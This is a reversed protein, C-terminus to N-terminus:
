LAGQFISFVATRIVSNWTEEESASDIRSGAIQRIQRAEDERGEDRARRYERDLDEVSRFDEERSVLDGLVSTGIRGLTICILRVVEQPVPLQTGEPLWGLRATIGGTVAGILTERVIRWGSADRWYHAPDRSELMADFNSKLLNVLAGSIAGSLIHVGVTFEAAGVGAASAFAPIGFGLTLGAAAVCATIVLPWRWVRISELGQRAIAEGLQELTLDEPALQQVRDRPEPRSEDVSYRQLRVGDNSISLIQAYYIVDDREKLFTNMGVRLQSTQRLQSVEGNRITFAWMEQGGLLHIRNGQIEWFERRAYLTEIGLQTLLPRNLRTLSGRLNEKESDDLTQWLFDGFQRERGEFGGLLARISRVVNPDDSVRGQQLLSRLNGLEDVADPDLDAEEVRAPAAEEAGEAAEAAAPRSPRALSELQPTLTIQRNSVQITGTCQITFRQNETLREDGALQEHMEWLHAEVQAELSTRVADGIELPELVHAIIATRAANWFQDLNRHWRVTVQESIERATAWRAELQDVDFDLEEHTSVFHRWTGSGMQGDVGLGQAHQYRAVALAFEESGPQYDEWGPVRSLFNNDRPTLFGFRNSHLINQRCANRLRREGLMERLEDDTVESAPEVPTAATEGEGSQEVTPEPAVEGEEEGDPVRQLPQSTVRQLHRNGQMWGIQDALAQRQATQLRPDTLLAAQAQISGNGGSSLGAPLKSLGALEYGLQGATAPEVVAPNKRNSKAETAQMEKAM